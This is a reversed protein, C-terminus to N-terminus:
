RARRQDEAQIEDYIEVLKQNLPIARLSLQLATSRTIRKGHDRMFDIIEDAKELDTSYLSVSKKVAGQSEVTEPKRNRSTVSNTV